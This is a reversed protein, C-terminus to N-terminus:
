VACEAIEAAVAGAEDESLSSYCVVFTRRDEDSPASCYDSVRKIAIGRSAIRESAADGDISSDFRLLLHLGSEEGSISAVNAMRSRRVARMLADRVKIYRGRMRIINKEFVGEELLSALLTQEFTSITNSCSGLREAFRATLSRPLVMYSVRVTPSLTETFTNIYIVRGDADFSQLAPIPRGALRYESDYDDEIIYRDDGSVAWGLLEYRRAIPMVTGTPFHHSPSIHLVDADGISDSRLGHEDMPLMLVRQSHLRYTRAIEPRGPDEVGFVRGQGLLLAIMGYLYESGAGIVIADTPVTMGRFARLHNSIARKLEPVGTPPTRTLIEDKKSRLVNKIVRVCASYPFIHPVTNNATLDYRPAPEQPCAEPFPPADDCCGVGDPLECVYYGKKPITRVYGEAILQSYASEVTIVSVGLEQALQRKSPLREGPSFSRKSIDRKIAAYLKEYLSDGNIGDLMYTIM